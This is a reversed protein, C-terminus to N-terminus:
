RAPTARRYHTRRLVREVGTADTGIQELVVHNADIGRLLSTARALAGTRPAVVDLLFRIGGHSFEGRGHAVGMGTSLDSVMLWQYEESAEDVGVFGSWTYTAGGDISLNADISLYRGGLVWEVAARGPVADSEVGKADVAVNTTLWAGVFGNLARHHKGPRTATAQIAAQEALPPQTAGPATRTPAPDPHSVCSAAAFGLALATLRVTSPKM